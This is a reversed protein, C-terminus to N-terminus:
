GNDAEPAQVEPLHADREIEVELQLRFLEVASLAIAHAKAVDHGAGIAAALVREYCSLVRSAKAIRVENRLLQLVGHLRRLEKVAEFEDAKETM